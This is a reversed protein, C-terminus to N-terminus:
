VRGVYILENSHNDKNHPKKPPETTFFRGTLGPTVPVMPEIGTDPLYGPPPFPMEGWYEQRSFEM